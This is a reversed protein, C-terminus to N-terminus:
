VEPLGSLRARGKTHPGSDWKPHGHLYFTPAQRKEVVLDTRKQVRVHLVHAVLEREDLRKRPFSHRGSTSTYLFFFFFVCDGVKEAM